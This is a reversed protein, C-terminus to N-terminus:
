ILAPQWVTKLATFAVVNDPDLAESSFWEAQSFAPLIRCLKLDDAAMRTLEAAFPEDLAFAHLAAVDPHKALQPALEIRRGTLVNLVGRPVGAAAVCEAFAVATRPDTESALVVATNGSVLPPVVASVLGLLSPADPALAAVVGIPEPRAAIAYPASRPATGSVVAAYKDCWGAYWLARDIAADAERAAETEDAKAGARLREILQARRADLAEALRYLVEGRALPTAGSWEDFARRAAAVANRLDQRSARAVRVADDGAVAESRESESRVFDGDIFLRYTTRVDLRLPEKSKSV